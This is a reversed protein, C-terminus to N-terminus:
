GGTRTLSGPPFRGCAARLARTGTGAGWRVRRSHTLRGSVAAGAGRALRVAATRPLRRVVGDGGRLDGGGSGGPLGEGGGPASLPRAPVDRRGRAPLLVCGGGRQDSGGFGAGPVLAADAWDGAGGVGGHVAPVQRRVGGDAAPRDPQVSVAGDDAGEGV